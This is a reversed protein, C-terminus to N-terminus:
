LSGSRLREPKSGTGRDFIPVRKSGGQTAFSFIPVRKSAESICTGMGGHCVTTSVISPRSPMLQRQRDALSGSLLTSLGWSPTLTREFLTLSQETGSLVILSDLFTSTAMSISSLPRTHYSWLIVIYVYTDLAHSRTNGASLAGGIQASPHQPIDDDKDTCPSGAQRLQGALYHVVEHHHQTVCQAGRGVSGLVCSQSTRPFRAGAWLRASQLGGCMSLRRGSHTEM